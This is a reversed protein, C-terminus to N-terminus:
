AAWSRASTIKLKFILFEVGETVEHSKSSINRIHRRLLCVAITEALEKTLEPPLAGGSVIQRLTDGWPAPAVWHSLAVMEGLIKEFNLSPRLSFNGSEYYSQVSQWLADFYNPFNYHEAWDRGWGKMYEDLVAVSPMGRPISSGAGLIVLLKKRM